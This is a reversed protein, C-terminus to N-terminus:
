KSRSPQEVSEQKKFLDTFTKSNAIAILAGLTIGMVTMGRLVANQKNSLNIFKWQRSIGDLKREKLLDTTKNYFEKDLKIKDEITQIAKEVTPPNQLLQGMKLEHGDLLTKFAGHKKLEDYVSDRISNRTTWAAVIASFPYAIAKILNGLVGLESDTKKQYLDNKEM